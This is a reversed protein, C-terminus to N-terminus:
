ELRFINKVNNLDMKQKQWYKTTSHQSNFELDTLWNNQPIILILMKTKYQLM